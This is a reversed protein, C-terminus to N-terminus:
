FNYRPKVQMNLDANYIENLHNGKDAEILAIIEKYSNNKTSFRQEEKKNLRERKQERKGFKGVPLSYLASLVVRGAVFFMKSFIYSVKSSHKKFLIVMSRSFNNIFNVSYRNTSCSKFHLFTIPLYYVKLGKKRIRICLDVDEAYMFFDESLYVEDGLQKRNLFMFSGSTVEVEGTQSDPLSYNYINHAHQQIFKLDCLKLYKFVVASLTPANCRHEPLVSGMAGIGRIGIIGADPHSDMFNCVQSLCDEPIITDPNLLLIYDGQAKAIAQNNAHSFGNNEFNQMFVVNPYIDKLIDGPKEDSNNDVVIIEYDNNFEHLSKYVSDLCVLLYNLSNYNVIVVSLKM